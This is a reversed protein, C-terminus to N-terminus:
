IMRGSRIFFVAAKQTKQPSLYKESLHSLNKCLRAISQTGVRTTPKQHLNTDLIRNLIRISVKRINKVYFKVKSNGCQLNTLNIYSPEKHIDESLGSSFELSDQKAALVAVEELSFNHLRKTWIVKDGTINKFSRSRQHQLLARHVLARQIQFTLIPPCLALM